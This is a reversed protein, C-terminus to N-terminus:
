ARWSEASPGGDRRLCAPRAIRNRFCVPQTLAKPVAELRGFDVGLRRLAAHAVKKEWRLLTWFTMIVTFPHNLLLSRDAARQFVQPLLIAVTWTCGKEALSEFTVDFAM